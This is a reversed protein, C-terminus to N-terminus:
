RVLRREGPERDPQRLDRGILEAARKLRQQFTDLSVGCLMACERQNFGHVYFFAVADRLDAPLEQVSLPLPIEGSGGYCPRALQTGDETNWEALPVMGPRQHHRKAHAEIGRWVFRKVAAACFPGFGKSAQAPDYHELAWMVGNTAADIAAETLEDPRPARRKAHALADAYATAIEDETPM